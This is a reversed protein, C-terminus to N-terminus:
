FRELAQEFQAKRLPKKVRLIDLTSVIWTINANSIPGTVIFWILSKPDMSVAGGTMKIWIKHKMKPEIAKALNANLSSKQKCAEYSYDIKAQQQKHLPKVCNQCM